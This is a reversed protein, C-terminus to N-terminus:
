RQRASRLRYTLYAVLALNLLLASVRPLTFRRVLEYIEVPVFSATAIVTLYEAWQRERWLGIGEVAFLTAYLFAGVGLAEVRLPTLGSLHAVIGQTLRRDAGSSLFAAWQQVGGVLGGHVLEFAGLGVVFLCVAKVLKFAAILALGRDRRAAPSAHSGPLATASGAM